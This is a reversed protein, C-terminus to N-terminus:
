TVRPCRQSLPVTDGAGNLSQLRPPSLLTEATWVENLRGAGGDRGPRPGHLAGHKQSITETSTQTDAWNTGTQALRQGETSM